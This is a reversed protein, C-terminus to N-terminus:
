AARVSLASLVREVESWPVTARVVQAMQKFPDVSPDFAIPSAPVLPRLSVDPIQSAAAALASLGRRLHRLQESGTLAMGVLAVSAAADDRDGAVFDAARRADEESARGVTRDRVVEIIKSMETSDPALATVGLAACEAAARVVLAREVGARACFWVMWDGRECEHWSAEDLSRGSAWQRAPTCARERELMSQLDFMEKM